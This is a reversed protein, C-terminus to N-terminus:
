QLFGQKLAQMLPEKQGAPQGPRHGQNITWVIVGGVGKQKVYAGKELISQPDEYSVFTCGKPGKASSFGLYPM